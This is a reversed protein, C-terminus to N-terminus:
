VKIPISNQTRTIGLAYTWNSNLATNIDHM